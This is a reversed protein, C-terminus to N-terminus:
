PSRAPATAHERPTAELAMEAPKGHTPEFAGQVRIESRVSSCACAAAPSSRCHAVAAMSVRSSSASCSEASVALAEAM